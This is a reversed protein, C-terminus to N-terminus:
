GAALSPDMANRFAWGFSEGGDAGTGWTDVEDNGHWINTTNWRRLGENNLLTAAHRYCDLDAKEIDGTKVLALAGVACCSVPKSTGTSPDYERVFTTGDCGTLGNAEAAAIAEALLMEDHPVKCKKAM